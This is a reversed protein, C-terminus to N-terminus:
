RIFKRIGWMILCYIIINQWGSRLLLTLTRFIGTANNFYAMYFTMAMIVPIPVIFLKKTLVLSALFYFLLVYIPFAFLYYGYGMWSLGVASDGSVRFGMYQNRLGLADTSLLDGPTYNNEFKNRTYGFINLIPTPILFTFFNDAYKGM